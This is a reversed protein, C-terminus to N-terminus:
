DYSPICFYDVIKDKSGFHNITQTPHGFKGTFLYILDIVSYLLLMVVVVSHNLTSSTNPGSSQQNGAFYEHRQTRM